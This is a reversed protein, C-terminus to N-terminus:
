TALFAEAFKKMVREPTFELVLSRIEGSDVKRPDFSMVARYLDDESAYFIGKDKLMAVHNQDIGGTWALVPKGLLCFEAIALGFSEGRLRAHLMADCSNIFNAKWQLDTTGPVHIINPRPECFPKTNLLVFYLDQREKAIREVARHALDLNFQDYGGHRGFVIAKEPIGLSARLNETPAPLRVIHPVFPSKGGTMKDSLWSSIYAYVDGHPEHAQFVVHVACRGVTNVKGDREGSKLYYCVDSESYRLIADVQSFDDYPLTTFHKTFHEIAVPDNWRHNREYLIVSENGLLVRNYHAYDFVAVSTGQLNLQNTHFAVRM